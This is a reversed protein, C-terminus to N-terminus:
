NRNICNYANNTVLIIRSKEYMDKVDFCDIYSMTSRLAHIMKESWEKVTGDVTYWKEMGEEVKTDVGMDNQGRNSAMGYFSKMFSVQKDGIFFRGNGKYQFDDRNMLQLGDIVENRDELGLALASSFFSTCPSASELKRGLVSGIMVFDAGLCLAKSVDGFDRIGGDAVIYPCKAHPNGFLLKEKEIITDAILSAIPYNVGTIPTTTCGDGGGINLRVYDVGAKAAYYYTSPNAINGVMLVLKDGYHKKALEVKKYLEEMHGNAMDVLVFAKNEIYTHNACFFTDFEELSFAAWKGQKAFELRMEVKYKKDRPLIPIIKNSEFMEFNELSVVSTMPAAFIPLMGNKFPNIDGRHRVKSIAAPVISIDNYAYKFEKEIKGM